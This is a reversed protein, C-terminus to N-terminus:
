FKCKELPRQCAAFALMEKRLEAKKVTKQGNGSSAGRHYTYAIIHTDIEKSLHAGISSVKRLCWLAQGQAPNGSLRLAACWVTVESHIIVM